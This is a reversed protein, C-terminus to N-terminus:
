PVSTIYFGYQHSLMGCAGVRPPKFLQTQTDDKAYLHQHLGFAKTIQTYLSVYKSPVKIIRTSLYYFLLQINM